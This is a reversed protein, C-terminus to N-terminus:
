NEGSRHILRRLLSRHCSAPPDSGTGASDDVIEAAQPTRLLMNSFEPGFPQEPSLGFIRSGAVFSATDCSMRGRRLGTKIVDQLVPLARRLPDRFQYWEIPHVFPRALVIVTMTTMESRPVVPRLTRM